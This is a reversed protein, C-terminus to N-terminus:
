EAIEGHGKLFGRDAIDVAHNGAQGQSQDQRLAIGNRRDGLGEDHRDIANRPDCERRHENEPEADAEVGFDHHGRQRGEQQYKEIGVFSDARSIKFQPINRAYEPCRAPLEEPFDCQGIGTWPNDSAQPDGNGLRQHGGRDSFENGGDAAEAKADHLGGVGHIGGAGHTSNEHQHQHDYNEIVQEIVEFVPGQEPPGLDVIGTAGSNDSRNLVNEHCPSPEIFSSRKLCWFSTRRPKSSPSTTTSTSAASAACPRSDASSAASAASVKGKSSAPSRPRARSLLASAAPSPAHRLAADSTLM